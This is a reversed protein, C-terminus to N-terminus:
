KVKMYLRVNINEGSGGSHLPRFFPYGDRVASASDSTLSIAISAPDLASFVALENSVWSSLTVTAGGFTGEAEILIDTVSHGLYIDEFTDSETVGEWVFTLWNGKHSLVVPIEAM